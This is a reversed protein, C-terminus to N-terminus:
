PSQPYTKLGVYELKLIIWETSGATSQKFSGQSQNEEQSSFPLFM